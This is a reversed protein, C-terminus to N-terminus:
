CKDNPFIPLPDTYLFYNYIQETKSIENNLVKARIMGLQALIDSRAHPIKILNHHRHFYGFQSVISSKVPFMKAPFTKVPSM